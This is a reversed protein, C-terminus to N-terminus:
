VAQVREVSEVGKVRRLNASLTTMEEVDRVSLTLTCVSRGDDMARAEARNINIQAQECVKSIDALMGPRDTCVIRVETSHRLRTERDWEVAIRRDLDTRKLEACEVKHVSIGRGRTIFGEVPEGPLPSCCNAFSVLVGDEGSILVPSESRRNWRAFLNGLTSSPAEQRAKWAGDPLLEKGVDALGLKGKAVDVFLLEPNDFGHLQAVRALSGDNKVKSLASGSRRLEADVMERGLKVGLEHEQARLYRRIRQIARGTRAIDLWGRNPKQNESTLIELTDGSQLEYRLPVIRGNVKAGACHVGVESHVAFAFDLATAGAPLSRIDGAPTFVFVEDAYFEPKLVAMFDAATEAESAHQFVERIKGIRAMDENSLALRGEKYKWHAAIGDENTRHMDETRIQVEMRRKGPGFVTTHLSKYGNPKPRAIYDKIRDPVPPYYSHVLGLTAYCQGVDKVIVRFAILDHIEDLSLGQNQMKKHLSWTHKARGAVAGHVGDATLRHELDQCVTHIYQDRDAATKELWATIHAYSEPHIARFCIDELENKIRSLGLRNAIPVFVEMTEEAIKKAKEPSHGDITRMNHTRDALKVLIVRVDRSMALMMKRFNEAALEEHSRFKLKGIKTVGDVLGTIERGVSATMEQKSLPNDELADHLLATAITDTDMRMEALIMAVDLPHTLYPEGTKRTQGAHAKAALLYASMVTKLDADPSYSRIRDLIDSITTVRAEVQLM